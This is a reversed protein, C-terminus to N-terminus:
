RAARRMGAREEVKPALNTRWFLRAANGGLVAVFEESSLDPHDTIMRDVLQGAVPNQRWM